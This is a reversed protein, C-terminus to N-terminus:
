KKLYKQEPLPTRGTPTLGNYLMKKIIKTNDICEPVRQIMVRLVANGRMTPNSSTKLSKRLERAFNRKLALDCDFKNIGHKIIDEVVDEIPPLARQADTSGEIYDGIIHIDYIIAALAKQHTPSAGLRAVAAQMRLNRIAQETIIVQFGREIISSDNTAKRFCEQLAASKRPDGNFGWHFFIRHTYRGWSFQHPLVAQKVKAYLVAYNHDIQDAFVQLTRDLRARIEQDQPGIGFVRFIEENHVKTDHAYSLAPLLIIAALCVLKLNCLFRRMKTM